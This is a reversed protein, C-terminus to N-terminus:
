IPSHDCRWNGDSNEVCLNRPGMRRNSEVRSSTCCVDNRPGGCASAKGLPYQGSASRYGTWMGIARTRVLFLREINSVKPYQLSM